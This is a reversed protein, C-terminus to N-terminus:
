HSTLRVVAILFGIAMFFNTISDANNNKARPNLACFLVPLFGRSFFVVTVSVFFSVVVVRVFGVVEVGALTFLGSRVIGAVGEPFLVFARSDLVGAFVPFASLVLCLVM